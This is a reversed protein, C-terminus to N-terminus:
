NNLNLQIINMKQKNNPSVTYSTTSSPKQMFKDMRMTGAYSRIVSQTKAQEPHNGNVKSCESSFNFPTANQIIEDQM